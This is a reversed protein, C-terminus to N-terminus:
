ALFSSCQSVATWIDRGQFPQMEIASGLNTQQFRGNPIIHHFRKLTRELCSVYGPHENRAGQAEAISDRQSEKTKFWQFTPLSLLSFRRGRCLGHRPRM